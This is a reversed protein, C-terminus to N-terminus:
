TIARAHALSLRLDGHYIGSRSCLPRKSSCVQQDRKCELNSENVYGLHLQQMLRCYDIIDDESLSTSHNNQEFFLVNLM